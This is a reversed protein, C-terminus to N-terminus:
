NLFKYTLDQKSSFINSVEVTNYNYIEYFILWHKMILYYYNTDRYKPRAEPFYNLFSLSQLLKIRFQYSAIPNQLEYFIYKTISEVKMVFNEDYHVNYRKKM